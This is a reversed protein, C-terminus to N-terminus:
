LRARKQDGRGRSTPAPEGFKQAICGRIRTANCFALPAADALDVHRDRQREQRGIEDFRGDLSSKRMAEADSAEGVHGGFPRALALHETEDRTLRMRVSDKGSATETEPFRSKPALSIHASFVRWAQRAM